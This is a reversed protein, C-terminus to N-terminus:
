SGASKRGKDGNAAIYAYIYSFSPQATNAPEVLGAVSGLSAAYNNCNFGFMRWLPPRAMNARVKALLQQYQNETLSVRYAAGPTFHCDAYSPKLEAPMPVIAGGYLGILSGKPFLGNYQRTVPNGKEDLRGFVVYLHGSPIGPSLRQRFEIYAPDGPNTRNATLKAAGGNPNGHPACTLDPMEPAYANMAATQPSQATSQCAALSLSLLAIAIPSRAARISSSFM